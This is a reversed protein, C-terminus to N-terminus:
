ATPCADPCYTYGFYILVWKGRYSRESVNQGSTAVLLFPGGITAIGSPTLDARLMRGFIVGVLVCAGSFALAFALVILGRTRNRATATSM